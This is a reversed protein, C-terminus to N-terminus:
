IGNQRMGDRDEAYFFGFLSEMRPKVCYIAFICIKQVPDFVREHLAVGAQVGIGSKIEFKHVFRGGQKDSSVIESAELFASGVALGRYACHRFSIPGLVCRDYAGRAHLRSGVSCIPIEANGCVPEEAVHYPGHYAGKQFHASALSAKFIECGEHQIGIFISLFRYHAASCSLARRPM